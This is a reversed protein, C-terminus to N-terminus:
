HWVAHWMGPEDFTVPVDDGVQTGDADLLKGTITEITTDTFLEGTLANSLEALRTLNHSDIWCGKM